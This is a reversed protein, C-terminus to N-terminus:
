NMMISRCRMYSVLFHMKPLYKELEILVFSLKTAYLPLGVYRLKNLFTIPANGKWSALLLAEEKATNSFYTNSLTVQYGFDCSIKHLFYADSNGVGRTSSTAVKSFVDVLFTQNRCFLISMLRLIWKSSEYLSIGTNPDVLFPFRCSAVNFLFNFLTFKIFYGFHTFSTM